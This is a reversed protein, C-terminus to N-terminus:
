VLDEMGKSLRYDDPVAKYVWDSYDSARTRSLFDVILGAYYDEVNEAITEDAISERDFNDKKIIKM